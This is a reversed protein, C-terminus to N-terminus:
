LRRNSFLTNRYCFNNRIKNRFNLVCQPNRKSIRQIRMFCVPRALLLPARDPAPLRFQWFFLWSKEMCRISVRHSHSRSNALNNIPFLARILLAFSVTFTHSHTHFLSVSFLTNDCNIYLLTFNQLSGRQIM